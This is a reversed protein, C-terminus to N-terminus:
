PVDEASMLMGSTQFPPMEGKEALLRQAQRILAEDGSAGLERARNLHLLAQKPDRPFQEAGSRCGLYLRGLHRHAARSGRSAATLLLAHGKQLDKPVGKGELCLVGLTNAASGDGRAYAEKLWRLAQPYDESRILRLALENMSGVHGALAAKELYGLEQPLLQLEGCIMAVQRYTPILKPDDQPLIDTQLELLQLFYELEHEPDKLKGYVKAVNRCADQLKPDEARLLERRVKLCALRHPLERRADGLLAYAVALNNHSQAIVPHLPPFCAQRIRLAERFHTLAEQHRGLECLSKGLNNHSSALDPHDAPLIAQRIRLARFQQVTGPQHDGLRCLADGVRACSDALDPHDPPLAAERIRLAEQQYQLEGRPDGRDGCATGLCCYSAALDPHDPPLAAQRIRLAERHYEMELEYEGADGCLSGLNSWLVALGPHDAPFATRGLDLARRAYEMARAYQGARRYLAAAQSADAPDPPGPLYQAAAFCAAAQLVQDSATCHSRLQRLFPACRTRDPKLASRCVERVVPHISLLNGGSITLWGTGTLATLAAPDSLCSRFLAADMGEPPILTACCLVAAQAPDIGSLDFLTQLHGQLRDQRSSRDHTTTVQPLDLPAGGRLAQVLAEPTVTHLSRAITRAMLDLALTHSSVADILSDMQEPLLAAHRLMLRHLHKRDLPGVEHWQGAGEPESRTTLMLHMPLRCLDRYAETRLDAFSGTPSDAHDIILIDGPPCQGLLQLVERYVREEPKPRGNPLNRSYGSFADAIPGTITERFSNRFRVFHVGSGKGKRRAYDIALETKGLGPFGWLVIPNIRNELFRDLKRRDSDRGVFEGEALTSLGLNLRNRLPATEAKLRRIQQLMEGTNQYRVALDRATSRYLIENLLGLLEPACGIYRCDPVDMFDPGVCPLARYPLLKQPTAVCRLMLCGISFLDSQRSLRFVGHDLMEPPRIGLAAFVNKGLLPETFGNEDLERASGFDILHATGVRGERIRSDTFRINGGHLDGFYYGSVQPREPDRATHVQELAILIEEMLCATIHIGPLGRTQSFEEPTCSDHIEELITDFSKSKLDMRDLVAFVSGEPAHYTEGQFTVAQPRLLERICIARDSANHILQGMRQEAAAGRRFSDLLQVSLSDEPDRPVIVGGRRLYDGGVPFCEKIAYCLHTDTRRAAYVVASGGYGIPDSTIIYVSDGCRIRDGEGLAWTKRHDAAM